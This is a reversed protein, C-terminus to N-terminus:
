QVQMLEVVKLVKQDLHVHGPVLFSRSPSGGFPLCSPRCLVREILDDCLLSFSRQEKEPDKQIWLGHLM